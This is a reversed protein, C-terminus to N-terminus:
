LCQVCIEVVRIYFHQHWPPDFAYIEITVVHLDSTYWRNVMHWTYMLILVFNEADSHKNGLKRFCGKLFPSNYCICIFTPKYNWKFSGTITFSYHYIFLVCVQQTECFYCVRVKRCKCRHIECTLPSQAGNKFSVTVWM